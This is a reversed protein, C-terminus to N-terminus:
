MQLIRNDIGRKVKLNNDSTYVNILGSLYFPLLEPFIDNGM